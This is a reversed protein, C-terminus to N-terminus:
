VPLHPLIINNMQTVLLNELLSKYKDEETINKDNRYTLSAAVAGNEKGLKISIINLDPFDDPKLLRDEIVAIKKDASPCWRKNFVDVIDHVLKKYSM